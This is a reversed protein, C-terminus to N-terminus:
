RGDAKPNICLKIIKNKMNDFHEVDVLSSIANDIQVAEFVCESIMFAKLNYLSQYYGAFDISEYHTYLVKNRVLQVLVVGESFKRHIEYVTKM